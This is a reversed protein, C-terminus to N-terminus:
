KRKYNFTIIVKLKIPAFNSLINEIIREHIYKLVIKHIILDICFEMTCKEEIFSCLQLHPVVNHFM